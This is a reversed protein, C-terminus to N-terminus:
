GALDWTTGADNRLKVKGSTSDAWFYWHGTPPTGPDSIEPITKPLAVPNAENQPAEWWLFWKSGTWYGRVIREQGNALLPPAGTLWTITEAGQTSWAIPDLGSGTGNIRLTYFPSVNGAVPTKLNLTVGSSSIAISRLQTLNFNIDHSGPSNAASEASETAWGIRALSTLFNVADISTGNRRLFRGDALTSFTLQTGGGDHIKKVEPAPYSGALDGSASGSPPRSATNTDLTADTVLTNLEALTGSGLNGLDTGHPNNTLRGHMADTIWYGGSTETQTGIVQGVFMSVNGGNIDWAVSANIKGVLARLTGGVMNIATANGVGSGKEVISGITGALEGGGASSRRIGVCGTSGTLSISGIEVNLRTSSNSIDIAASNDPVVIEDVSAFATDGSNLSPQLGTTGNTTGVIRRAYLSAGDGALVAAPGSSSRSEKIEARSNSFLVLTGGLTTDFVAEPAFLHTWSQISSGAYKGGDLCVVAVQNSESPTLALAATMAAALTAKAKSFQLGDNSDDGHLGFFITQQINTNLRDATAVLADFLPHAADTNDGSYGWPQGNFNLENPQEDSELPLPDRQYPPTIQGNADPVSFVRIDVSTEGGTGTVTNRIRYSGPVDPQLNIAPPSLNTGNGLPTPTGPNVPGHTSGPPAFLLDIAWTSLDTVDSMEILVDNGAVVKLAEGDGEIPTPTAQSFKLLADVTM